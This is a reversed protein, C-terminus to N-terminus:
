TKMGWTAVFYLHEEPLPGRALRDLAGLFAEPIRGMGDFRPWALMREDKNRALCSM